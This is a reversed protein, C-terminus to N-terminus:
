PSSDIRQNLGWLIPYDHNPPPHRWPIKYVLVSRGVSAKASVAMRIAHEFDTPATSEAFEAAVFIICGNAGASADPCAPSSLGSHWGMLTWIRSAPLPEGYSAVVWFSKLRLV